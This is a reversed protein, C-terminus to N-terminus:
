KQKRYDDLDDILQERANYIRRLGLLLSVCMVLLVFSFPLGTSVTGAQLAKLAEKGGGYLLAAATCGEAIAWFVRQPVPAELKGGSTITDVVLSGSDSSTVFFVVVLIISIASTVTALPLQALMQFLTLSADTVGNALEGVQNAYQDLAIQGFVSMWIITVVTPIIIVSLIFERVTRGKSIRAIFM